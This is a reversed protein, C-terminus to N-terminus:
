HLLIIQGGIKKIVKEQIMKEHFLSVTHTSLSSLAALRKITFSKPLVSENGVPVGCEEALEEMIKLLRPYGKQHLMNVRDFLFNKKEKEYQFLFLIGEQTSFLYEMIDLRNFILLKCDTFAEIDMSETGLVLELNLFQSHATIKTPINCFYSCTIGEVLFCIQEHLDLKKSFLTDKKITVSISEQKSVTLLEDFLREQNFNNRITSMNYLQELEAYM